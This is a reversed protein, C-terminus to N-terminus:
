FSTVLVCCRTLLNKFDRSALDQSVADGDISPIVSM